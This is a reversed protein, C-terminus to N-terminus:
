NFEETRKKSSNSTTRHYNAPKQTLKYDQGALYDPHVLHYDMTDGISVMLVDFGLIHTNVEEDSNEGHHKGSIDDRHGNDKHLRMESKMHMRGNIKENLQPLINDEDTLWLDPYM